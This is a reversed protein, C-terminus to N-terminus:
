GPTASPTAGPPLAPTAFPRIVVTVEPPDTGLWTAGQPVVVEPRLTYTGPGLGALRVFVTIDEARMGQLIEVPASVQLSLQPPLVQAELGPELGVHGIELGPLTQSTRTANSIAIRVEINGGSPDIVTVGEPLDVLGVQASFSLAADTVDVAETNVFLLENLVEPPGDVVITDPIARSQEISYGEAPVGSTNPIVSVSRGRTQVEVRTAIEAPLVDVETILQGSSDVAYPSFLGNFDDVQEGLSVPLVVSDIRDVASSPGGVTVQSVEPTVTGVSRAQDGDLITDITLPFVTSVRDEVQISVEEPQVTRENVDPTDVILPVRYTGPEEIGRTDLRVSIDEDKIGEVQSSAATLTVTAEPLTSVVELTAPLDSTEVPISSFRKSTFPDQLQTVWGWLLTALLFSVVFRAIQTQSPRFQLSRFLSM